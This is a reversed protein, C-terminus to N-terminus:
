LCNLQMPLIILCNEMVRESQISVQMPTTESDTESDVLNRTLLVNKVNSIKKLQLNQERINETCVSTNQLGLRRRM